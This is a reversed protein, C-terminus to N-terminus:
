RRQDEAIAPKVPPSGPVGGGPQENLQSADFSSDMSKAVEILKDRSPPTGSEAWGSVNYSVGGSVWSINSDSIWGQERDPAGPGAFKYANVEIIAAGDKLQWHARTQPEAGSGESVFGSCDGSLKTSVLATATRTYGSASPAKIGLAAMEAETLAQERMVCANAYNPDLLRAIATILGADAGQAPDVKFGIHFQFTGNTWSAGYEGVYGPYKEMNPDTASAGISLVGFQRESGNYIWNANFSIRVGAGPTGCDAAPATWAQIYVDQLTFEAPVVSRPDGIGAAIIDDWTGQRGVYFCAEAPAGLDALAARLVERARPDPGPLLPKDEVIRGDGALPQVSYGEVTVNFFYGDKSFRATTEEMVAAMGKEDQAQSIFLALGTEKHKWQTDVVIMVKGGATGGNCEPSQGRITFGTLEFGAALYKAAFGALAPDVKGDKLVAPIPVNCGYGPYSMRAEGSAGDSDFGASGRNPAGSNAPASGIQIAPENSPATNTKAGGDGRGGDDDMAGAVIAGSAFLGVGALVAAIGVFLRRPNSILRRM